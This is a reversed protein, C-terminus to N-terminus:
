LGLNRTNIGLTRISQLSKSAAEFRHKMSIKGSANKDYFTKQTFSFVSKEREPFYALALRFASAFENM